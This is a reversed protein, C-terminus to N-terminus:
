DRMGLFSYRGFSNGSFNNSRFSSFSSTGLVPQWLQELVTPLLNKMKYKYFLQKDFILGFSDDRRGIWSTYSKIIYGRYVPWDQMYDPRATIISFFKCFMNTCDLARPAQPEVDNGLILHKQMGHTFNEWIETFDDMSLYHDKVVMMTKQKLRIEGRDNMGIETDFADTSWTANSCAKHTCLSLPIYNKFGGKLEKIVAVPLKSTMNTMVKSFYRMTPHSAQENTAAM